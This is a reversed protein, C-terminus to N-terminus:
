DDVPRLSWCGILAAYWICLARFGDNMWCQHIAGAGLHDRSPMGMGAGSSSGVRQYAMRMTVDLQWLRTAALQIRSWYWM